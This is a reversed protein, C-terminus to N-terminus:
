VAGSSDKELLEMYCHGGSVRLDSMEAQVWINRTGSSMQIANTINQQLQSITLPNSIM